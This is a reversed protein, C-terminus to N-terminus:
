PSTTIAVVPVALFAGVIGGLIGGVGLVLLIVVPHLRVAV